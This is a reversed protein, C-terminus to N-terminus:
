LWFSSLCAVDIDKMGCTVFAPYGLKLSLSGRQWLLMKSESSMQIVPSFNTTLVSSAVHQASM